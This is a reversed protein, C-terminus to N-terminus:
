PKDWAQPDSAGIEALQDWIAKPPTSLWPLVDDHVLRGASLNDLIKGSRCANFQGADSLLSGVVQYAEACAAELEEVRKALARERDTIHQIM